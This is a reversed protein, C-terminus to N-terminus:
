PLIFFDWYSGVEMTKLPKGFKPNKEWFSKIKRYSVKNIIEGDPYDSADWVWVNKEDDFNNFISVHEIINNSDADFFIFDGTELRRPDFFHITSYKFLIDASVDFYTNVGDTFRDCNLKKYLYIILGSCDLGSLDSGGMSYKIGDLEKCFDIIKLKELNNLRFQYFNSDSFTRSIQIERSYFYNSMRSFNFQYLAILCLILSSIKNFM